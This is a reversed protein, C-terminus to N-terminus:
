FPRDLYLKGSHTKPSFDLSIPQMFLSQIHSEVSPAREDDGHEYICQATRAVNMATRTVSLPPANPCILGENLHRWQRRILQKIHEDSCDMSKEKMYCEISSAVDGREQEEKSTGLDDWLRLIRGSCAFIWPYSETLGVNGLTVKHGMLFSAQLLAMCTGGTIVGNTLYDELTPVTGRNFWKAEVLFAECIDTWTRQLYPIICCGYEKLVSYAIENITNYLAMYCIKMYQPLGDVAEVDWRRIADTFLTLDELSGYCDYVDDIVLLIAVAKAEQIRCKSYCPEPFMGATWLFCELPRDRAFSLNEVLGLTKWWKQIEAIESQHLSQVSNFDMAAFEFLNSDLGDNKSICDKMFEKAELRVMRMHRPLELANEAEKLMHYQSKLCGNMSKKLQEKSYDLAQLMIEEDNVGLHAAEYLSILGEMDENFAKKIKGGKDLFKMFVDSSVNYGQQRMLRFQLATDFLDASGAITESHTCLIENIQDEFHHSVGCRQITDIRKMINPTSGKNLENAITEKLEEFRKTPDLLPVTMQHDCSRSSLLGNSVLSKSSSFLTRRWQCAKQSVVDGHRISMSSAANSVLSGRLSAM